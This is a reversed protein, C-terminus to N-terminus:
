SGLAGGPGRGEGWGTWAEGGRYAPAGPAPGEWWVDGEEHHRDGGWM